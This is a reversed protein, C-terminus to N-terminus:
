GKVSGLMVGKMFYKQCFPYILLIPVTAVIITCYKIVLYVLARDDESVSAGELLNGSASNAILIERLLLQLPYLGRDRLYIMASFWSNWHGVAYFLVMVAITAKTVPLIIRFLIIFDNAGDMKASEELSDPIARFATTMVILNWTSILTPIILALRSDYLGLGKVLLFEPILGGGFYMTFVIMLMLLKKLLLDKRSLVYAGLATMLINLTTGVVVYFITNMYGSLINPNRFVIGYGITSFGQPKFLIGTHKALGAPESFSAFLVHLMPYLCALGVLILLLYNVIDFSIEGFTKKVLM